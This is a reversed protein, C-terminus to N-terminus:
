RVDTGAQLQFGADARDGEGIGRICSEHLLADNYKGARGARLGASNHRGLPPSEFIESLGTVKDFHRAHNGNSQHPDYALAEVAGCAGARQALHAITCVSRASFVRNGLKMEILYDFLQQGAAAPNLNRTDDEEAPAGYPNDAAACADASIQVLQVENAGFM